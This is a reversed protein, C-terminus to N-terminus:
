GGPARRAQPWHDRRGTRGSHAPAPATAVKDRGEAPQPEPARPSAVDAKPLEDAVATHERVPIDTIAATPRARKLSDRYSQGESRVLWVSLAVYLCALVAGITSKVM